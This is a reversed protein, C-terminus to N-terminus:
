KELKAKARVNVNQGNDLKGSVVLTLWGDKVQSKAKGSEFGYYDWAFYQTAPLETDGLRATIAISEVVFDYYLPKEPGIFEIGATYRGDDGVSAVFDIDMVSKGLTFTNDIDKDKKCSVALMAVAALAIIILKKM